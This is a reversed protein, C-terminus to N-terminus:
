WRSGACRSDIDDMLAEELDYRENIATVVDRMSSGVVTQHIAVREESGCFDSCPEGLRALMWCDGAAFAGACPVPPLIPPPPSPPRAPPQPPAEPPRNMCIIGDGFFDLQCRCSFGGPFNICM